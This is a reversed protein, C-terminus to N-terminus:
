RSHGRAEEEKLLKMVENARDLTDGVDKKRHAASTCFRITTIVGYEKLLESFRSAKAYDSDLGDAHNKIKNKRNFCFSWAAPFGQLLLPQDHEQAIQELGEKLMTGMKNINKFVAGDAREYEEMAAVVAAMALPHGNYTGGQIADGRTLADMIERKGSTSSVPFGGGLGKALTTMDPIVGFYGQAGDLGIRFGTLVEDFILVVGHKTCLERVGELYGPEPMCGFNNVMVPEMIAAAIHDGFKALLREFAPLDNWEIMYCENFAASYRGLTNAQKSYRDNELEGPVPVPNKPDRVIGGMLHDLGGHYHGNFRVYMDRGTHARAVRLAGRNAETGSCAFRVLEASKIHASVKGAAAVELETVNSTYLRDVQRKLAERIHRNSHGLVAPGYSLSYDIYENGDVDYLRAGKAHTIYIPRYGAMRRWNSMAAAPIVKRALEAVEDSKTIEYRKM